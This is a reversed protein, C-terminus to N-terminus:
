VLSYLSCPGPRALEVYYDLWKGKKGDELRMWGRKVVGTQLIPSLDVPDAQTTEPQSAVGTSQERSGGVEALLNTSTWTLVYPSYQDRGWGRTPGGVFAYTLVRVHDEGVVLIFRSQSLSGGVEGDALVTIGPATSVHQVVRRTLAVLELEEMSHGQDVLVSSLWTQFLEVARDFESAMGDEPCLIPQATLDAQLEKKTYVMLEGANAFFLRAFDRASKEWVPFQTYVESATLMNGPLPLDASLWLSNLLPQITEEADHQSIYVDIGARLGILQSTSKRHLELLQGLVSDEDTRFDVTREPIGSGDDCFYTAVDQIGQELALVAPGPTAFTPVHTEGTLVLEMTRCFIDFMHLMFRQFVQPYLAQHPTILVEDIYNIVLTWDPPDGSVAASVQATIMSSLHAAFRELAGDILSRLQKRGAVVAQTFTTGVDESYEAYYGLVSGFLESADYSLDKLRQDCALWLSNLRVWFSDPLGLKSGVIMKQHFKLEADKKAELFKEAAARRLKDAASIKKSPTFVAEEDFEQQRRCTELMSDREEASIEGAAYMQLITELQDSAATDEGKITSKAKKTAKVKMQEAKAKAELTKKEKWMEWKSLQKKTPTGDNAYVAPSTEEDDDLNPLLEQECLSHVTDCYARLAMCFVVALQPPEWLELLPQVNQSLMRFVDDVSNSHRLQGDSDMDEEVLEDMLEVYLPVWKDREAAQTAWNILKIQTTRLHAELIPEFFHTLDQVHIGPAIYEMTERIDRVKSYLKLTGETSYAQEDDNFIMMLVGRQIWEYYEQCVYSVLQVEDPVAFQYITDDSKIDEQVFDCLRLLTGSTLAQQKRAAASASETDGDQLAGLTIRDVVSAAWKKVAAQCLQLHEVGSARGYESAGVTVELVQVCVEIIGEEANEPSFTRKYTELCRRLVSTLHTALSRHLKTDEIPDMLPDAIAHIRQLPVLLRRLYIMPEKWRDKPVSWKQLSKVFSLLLAHAEYLNRRLEGIGWTEGFQDMMWLISPRRMRWWVAGPHTGPDAIRPNLILSMLVDFMRHANRSIKGDLDDLALFMEDRQAAGIEGAQFMKQLAARQDPVDPVRELLQANKEFSSPLLSKKTYQMDLHLLVQTAQGKVKAQKVDKWLCFIEPVELHSFYPPPAWVVPIEQSGIAIGDIWIEVKVVTDEEVNVALEEGRWAALGTEPDVEVMQTSEITPQELATSNAVLAVQVQPPTKGKWGKAGGPPGLGEGKKVRVVLKGECKPCQQVQDILTNLRLQQKAKWSAYPTAAETDNPFMSPDCVKNHNIRWMQMELESLIRAATAEGRPLLETLHKKKSSDDDYGAILLHRLLLCDDATLEPPPSALGPVGLEGNILCCLVAVYIQDRMEDTPEITPYPDSYEFEAPKMTLNPEDDFDLAIAEDVDEEEVLIEETDDVMEVLRKDSSSYESVWGACFQVRVTRKGDPGEVKKVNLVEFVQGAQLQGVRESQMLSGNRVVCSAVCRFLISDSDLVLITHKTSERSRISTWGEHCQVRVFADVLTADLVTIREGFKLDRLKESDFSSHKRLVAPRLVRFVKGRLSSPDVGLHQMVATQDDLGRLKTDTDQFEHALLAQGNQSTLSLWGRVCRVRLQSTSLLMKVELCEIVDGVLLDGVVKSDIECTERIATKKVAKLISNKLDLQTASDMDKGEDSQPEQFSFTLSLPRQEAAIAQIAAGYGFIKKGQVHTMWMTDTAWHEFELLGAALGDQNVGSIWGPSDEAESGFTLGLKGYQLFTVTVPQKAEQVRRLSAERTSSATESVWGRACQIHFLGDSEEVAMAKIVDGIILTGVRASSSNSERRITLTKLVRMVWGEELKVSIVQVSESGTPPVGEPLGQYVDHQEAAEALDMTDNGITSSNAGDTESAVLDSDSEPKTQPKAEETQQLLGPQLAWDDEEESEEESEEEQSDEELIAMEALQSRPSGMEADQMGTDVTTDPAKRTSFAAISEGFVSQRRGIKAAAAGGLKAMKKERQYRRMLSQVEDGVMRLSEHGTGLQACYFPCCHTACSQRLCTFAIRARTRVLLVHDKYKALREAQTEPSPQEIHETAWRLRMWLRRRVLDTKHVEATWQDSRFKMAYQWGEGDTDSCKRVAWENAWSWGPPCLMSQFSDSDDRLEPLPQGFADSFCPADHMSSVADCSFAARHSRRRQSEWVAEICIYSSEPDPVQRVGIDTLFHNVAVCNRLTPYYSLCSLFSQLQHKVGAADLDNWAPFVTEPVHFEETVKRQLELVDELQRCAWCENDHWIVFVSL